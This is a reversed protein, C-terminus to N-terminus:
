FWDMNEMAFLTVQTPIPVVQWGKGESGILTGHEGSVYDRSGAHTVLAAWLTETTGSAAPSWTGSANRELITGKEGVALAHSGDEAISVSNLKVDVDTEVAFSQGQDKSAWVSGNSDVALIVSGSTTAAVGM